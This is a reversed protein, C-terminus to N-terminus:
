VQVPRRLEARPSAPRAHLSTPRPSPTHLPLPSLAKLTEAAALVARMM